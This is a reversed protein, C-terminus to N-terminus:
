SFFFGEKVVRDGRGLAEFQSVLHAAIGSFQGQLAM